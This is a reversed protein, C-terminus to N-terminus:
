TKLHYRSIYNIYINKKKFLLLVWGWWKAQSCTFKEDRNILHLFSILSSSTFYLSMFTYMASLEIIQKIRVQALSVFIVISFLQTKQKKKWWLDCSRDTLHLSSILRLLSSYCFRGVLMLFMSQVNCINNYQSSFKSCLHRTPTNCKTCPIMAWLVQTFKAHHM